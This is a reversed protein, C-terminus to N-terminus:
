MRALVLLPMAVASEIREKLGLTGETVVGMGCPSLCLVNHSALKLALNM